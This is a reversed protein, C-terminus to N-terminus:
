AGDKVEVLQVVVPAAADAKLDAAVLPAQPAPPRPAPRRLQLTCRPPILQPSGARAVSEGAAWRRAVGSRSTLGCRAGYDASGFLTGTRAVRGPGGKRADRPNRDWGSVVNEANANETTSMKFPLPTLLRSLWALM